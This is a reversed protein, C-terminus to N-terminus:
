KPRYLVPGPLLDPDSDGEEVTGRPQSPAPTDAMRAEETAPQAPIPAEPTPSSPILLPASTVQAEHVQEKSRQHHLIQEIVELPLDALPISQDIQVNNQILTAPNGRHETLLPADTGWLTRLSELTRHCNDYAKWDPTNAQTSASWITYADNLLRDLMRTQRLKEREVIDTLNELAEKDAKRLWTGVTAPSCEMIQAIDVYPMGQSALDIAKQRRQRATVQLLAPAKGKAPRGRKLKGWKTTM